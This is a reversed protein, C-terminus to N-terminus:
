KIVRLEIEMRRILGNFIKSFFRKFPVVSGIRSSILKVSVCELGRVHFSIDEFASHHFYRYHQIHSFASWSNVHPTILYIRAGDKSIRVLENLFSYTDFLHEILHDAKIHKYQNERAFSYPYNNLDWVINKGYNINDVNDSGQLVYEGCGLNLSRNIM